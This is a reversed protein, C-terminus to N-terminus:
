KFLLTVTMGTGDHRHQKVRWQRGCIDIVDDKAIALREVDTTRSTIAPSSGEVMGFADAYENDFIAFFDQGRIRVSLGGLSKIMALRDADTEM